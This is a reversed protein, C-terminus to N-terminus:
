SQRWGEAEAYGNKLHSAPVSGSIEWVWVFEGNYDEGWRVDHLTNAPDLGMATWIRNTVLADVAVGEDAENFHPMAEGDWLTREGDRSKVPPREVNNLLGEALDSAACTDKLGQQYQIGLADVGFDDGIRLAAIYMKAQEIVQAKTLET